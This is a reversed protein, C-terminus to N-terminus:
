QHLKHTMSHDDFSEGGIRIADETIGIDTFGLKIYLDHAAKNKTFVSLDVWSLQEQEQAWDMAVKMLCRGLGQSRYESEIAIGLLVRHKQSDHGKSFLSVFGVCKNQEFAGWCIEWEKGFRETNFRRTYKKLLEQKDWKKDLPNPHFNVGDIGTQKYMRILHDVWVDINAATVLQIDINNLM